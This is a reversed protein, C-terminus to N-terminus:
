NCGQSYSSHQVTHGSQTTQQTSQYSSQHCQRDRLTGGNSPLRPAYDSARSDSSNLHWPFNWYRFPNWYRPTNRRPVNITTEGTDVYVSGDSRTVAEVNNTKVKVEALVSNSSAIATSPLILGAAVLGMLKNPKM